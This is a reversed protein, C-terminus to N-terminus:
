WLIYTRLDSDPHIRLLALFGPALIGMPHTVVVTIECFEGNAVAALTSGVSGEFGVLTGGFDGLGLKGGGVGDTEPQSKVERDEVVLDEVRRVLSAM